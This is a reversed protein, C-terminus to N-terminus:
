IQQVPNATEAGANRNRCRAQPLQPWRLCNQRSELVPPWLHHRIEPVIAAKADASGKAAEILKNLQSASGEQLLQDLTVPSPLKLLESAKRVDIVSDGTKVGLTETGDSNAVSLLTVNKPMEFPGSYKAAKPADAANATGALGVAAGAAAAGVGASQILTRRTIM